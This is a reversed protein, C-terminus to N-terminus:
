RGSYLSSDLQIEISRFHERDLIVAHFPCYMLFNLSIACRGDGLHARSPLSAACCCLFLLPFGFSRRVRSLFSFFFCISAALVARVSLFFVVM